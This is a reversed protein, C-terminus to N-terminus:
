YFGSLCWYTRQSGISSFNCYCQIHFDFIMVIKILLEGFIASIIHKGIQLISVQTTLAFRRPLDFKISHLCMDFM